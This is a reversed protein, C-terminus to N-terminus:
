RDGIFCHLSLQGDPRPRRVTCRSISAFFGLIGAVLVIAGATVVADVTKYSTGYGVNEITYHSDYPYTDSHSTQWTVHSTNYRFSADESRSNATLQLALIIVGFAFVIISGVCEVLPFLTSSAM